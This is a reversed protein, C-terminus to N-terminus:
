AQLVSVARAVEQSAKNEWARRAEEDDVSMPDTIEEYLKRSVDRNINAYQEATL